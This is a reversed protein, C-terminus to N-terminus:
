QAHGHDLAGGAHLGQTGALGVRRPVLLVPAPSQLMVAHSVSGLLVRGIPGHARSGMVLLDLTAARRSLVESPSGDLLRASVAVGNDVIHTAQELGVRVSERAEDLSEGAHVDRDHRRRAAPADFAEIVQVTAGAARAIEGAVQLAQLAEEGDCYAAGIQELNRPARVRYGLPAVAVACPAEHLIRDATTGPLTRGARGRATSGVVILDVQEHEALELLARPVSPEAILRVDIADGYQGRIEAAVREADAPTADPGGHGTGPAMPIYWYVCAAIVRGHGLSALLSGLALADGSRGSADYGVLVKDFM